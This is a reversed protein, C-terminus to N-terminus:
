RTALSLHPKIVVRGVYSSGDPSFHGADFTMLDLPGRGPVQALCGTPDCLQDMLSLYTVRPLGALTRAMFRDVDFVARDLGSAVRSRPEALYRGAFVSPLSPQWSPAPGIVLVHGAGLETVRKILSPWHTSEHGARQAVILLAPKLREISQLAFLNTRECRRDAVTLDFNEIQPVCASTAVQALVVSAALQERIGLSLAQAFSDGWLFYTGATGTTTCAPDISDRTSYTNWDLFDCEARYAGAIRSTKMHEYYAVFHAADSRNLARNVFGDTAYTAVGMAATFVLMVTCVPVALPRLRGFRVPREVLRYTAWALVLGIAVTVARAGVSPAGATHQRLFVLLPWHWLYLPYSILGLAVVLPNSLLTRNIAAAPGAAILLMTGAVPALALVGPFMGGADILAVSGIILLLGSTACLDAVRGRVELRGGASALAAGALLEWIRFWPAYFAATRDSQVIFLSAAFSVLGIACTAVLPGSRWRYVAVLCLPWILYFQEEIGLSWLHLLPTLAADAAFYNSEKWFLFNAFFAASGIVQKGIARYEAAFSWFWGAALVAMLVCVLAPFIRRIRRAYFETVSFRGAALRQLIIGSILYGSIVFFVDVGVFGGPMVSPFAHFAVVAAVAVARLGDVDARYRSTDLDTM